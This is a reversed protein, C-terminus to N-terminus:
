AVWFGIAFELGSIRHVFLSLAIFGMFGIFGGLGEFRLGM